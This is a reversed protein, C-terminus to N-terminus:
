KIIILVDNAAVTDGVKVKIEEIEGGKECYIENELKMAELVLVTEEAEVKQGEKVVIELVKGPIPAFVKEM